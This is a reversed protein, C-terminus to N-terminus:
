DNQKRWGELELTMNGLYDVYISTVMTSNLDLGDLSQIEKGNLYFLPESLFLHLISELTVDQKLSETETM